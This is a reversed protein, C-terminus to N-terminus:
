LLALAYYPAGYIREGDEDYVRRAARWRRVITKPKLWHSGLEAANHANELWPDELHIRGACVGAVTVWHSWSDVCLLLPAASAWKRLWAEAENASKSEFEVFTRDLEGIVRKVDEENAGDGFELLARRLLRYSPRAGYVRMANQLGAISCDSDRSQPKM